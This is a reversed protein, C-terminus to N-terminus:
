GTPVSTERTTPASQSAAHPDSRELWDVLGCVLERCGGCGTTAATAAALSDVTTSGEDWAAVLDGKTVGNCRCVTTAAPMATPSAAPPRASGSGALLHLPDEPLLGPRDFQTSLHAALEPAGVCTFGALTDGRTVLEVHRHVQPDALSVVRDGEHATTSRDGMTVVSLGAAKLSMASGSVAPLEVPVDLAISRALARAQAWGPAVLGSIGAPTEACDGIAAIRRDLTTRLGDGVVIGVNTELGAARALGTEPTTGAALVVLGAPYSVGDRLRVATVRGDSVGVAAIQVASVVEIGLGEAAGQAIRGAGPDLARDLLHPASSLVTVAVGRRRLGCALEVGLPGSGVVVAHDVNLAGASIDRADDLTRLVHAGRPLGDRLGPLLPIRGRAGTALVLHDYPHEGQTTVVCRRERDIEIVAVGLEMRVRSGDTTPLSLGALDVRGAILETLLVRSYPQYPEEGLLTIDVDPALRSLEDVFRHGVMGAGVVVVRATRGGSRGAHSM